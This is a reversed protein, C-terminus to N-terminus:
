RERGRDRDRARQASAEEELRRKEAAYKSLDTTTEAEAERTRAIIEKERKLAPTLPPDILDFLGDALKGAAGLLRFAPAVAKEGVKLASVVARAADGARIPEGRGPAQAKKMREDNRVDRLLDRFAQVETVRQEVRAKIKEQTAEIGEFQSRDLPKLFAEVKWREEGTTFKDLRYVRPEAIKGDRYALGPEAIAVIEGERYRPAYNGAARAFEANRHSRGAEAKTVVALSIGQEDLAAGFARANDSQHYATWIQAPTGRVKEPMPPPQESRTTDRAADGFHYGPSTWTREPKPPELPWKKDRHGLGKTREPAPEVFRREAKEKEIAAKALAEEWEIERRVTDRDAELDSIKRDRFQVRAQEVTPLKGLDVGEMFSRLQKANVGEIRRALSHEHGANDLICLGRRGEALQYGHQSLGEVFDAGNHSDRFIQTVEATIVRPDLGSKMGRYMEFSKLPRAAGPERERLGPTRELNLAQEIERKAEDCVDSNWGDRFARMKELDVRNWVVHRHTRGEKEHEIVIRQQGSPIGRHKEFIEYAQEWQKETLQEHPCPNFSAIYMFNKCRTLSADQQMELMMDKLDDAALGRTEIIDARLNQKRDQLHAAWFSVSRRSAGKIYM